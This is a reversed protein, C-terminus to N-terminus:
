PSQSAGLQDGFAHALRLAVNRVEGVDFFDVHGFELGQPASSDTARRARSRLNDEARPSPASAPARITEAICRRTRRPARRVPAGDRRAHRCRWGSGRHSSPAPPACRALASAEPIGGGLNAAQGIPRAGVLGAALFQGSRGDRDGAEALEAADCGCGDDIRRFHGDDSEVFRDLPRYHALARHHHTSDHVQRGREIMAEHVTIIGSCHNLRQFFSKLM